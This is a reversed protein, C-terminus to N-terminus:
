FSYSVGGGWYPGFGIRNNFLNYQLGMGLQISFSWPNSNKFLKEDIAAGEISSFKVYPNDSKAFLQYNNSIGITLPVNISINDIVTKCIPESNFIIDNKGQLSLWDDNYSFSNVFYKATNDIYIISDKVIKITDFKITSELKSIYSIKSDLLSQISKIEKNSINLREELESINLIYSDRISILENNEMKLTIMENEYAKINQEYINLKNTYHNIGFLIIFVFLCVEIIVSILSRNAM